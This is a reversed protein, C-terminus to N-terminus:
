IVEAFYQKGCFEGNNLTTELNFFRADGKEIQERVQEFGEYDSPIRRQILIDGAATFKM